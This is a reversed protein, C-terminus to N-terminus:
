ILMTRVLPHGIESQKSAPNLSYHPWARPLHPRRALRCPVDLVRDLVHERLQLALHPPPGVADFEAVLHQLLPPAISCCLVLVIATYLGCYAVQLWCHTGASTSSTNPGKKASEFRLTKAKRYAVDTGFAPKAEQQQPM